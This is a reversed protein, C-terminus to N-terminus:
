VEAMVRRSLALFRLSLAASIAVLGSTLGWWIGRVGYGLTFGFLMALPFGVLWHALVTAVFPFRVDGAGRLAGGAVTQVGDFLQFLAAITLLQVGLSIVGRDETFLRMLFVPAVAFLLAGLSMFAAGSAIGVLGRRRASTGSGVAHGVRVATAGGIGLAGMYTFSAYSLAIQHASVAEAGFRAVMLTALGFVGYEALMQLGVPLGIALIRRASVEGKANVPRLVWVARAVILVLVVEAISFAVGAGWAGFAPLGLRPMGLLALFDDGRVLLNCVVVNVVNAAISAVLAPRTIGHAQLFTKGALFVVTLGLGPAQTLLYDKARSVIEPSAGLPGLASTTLYALLMLPLWLALVTKVTAVLGLWARDPNRAGLAQAALPELGTSVGMALTIAAFGISRGIAAGALETVSVRGLVAIDVLGMAVLGAQAAAIPWALRVLQRAEGRLSEEPRHPAM